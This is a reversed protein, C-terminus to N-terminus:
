RRAAAGIFTGTLKDGEQKLKLSSEITQGSQTALTWKWTGTPNVVNKSDTDAARVSFTSAFAALIFAVCQLWLFKPTKM